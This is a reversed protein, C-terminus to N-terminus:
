ARRGAWISELSALVWCALGVFVFAVVFMAWGETYHMIGDGLAPSVYYVFFGTLFIRLGNLVMAVPIAILVLVVRSVPLRLWLGGMLTGLALLATLSRLGSCAETVFLSRSPLQIVNGSLRVPVHRWELLAAGFRSAQLQLPLALSSLVVSPLPVSLCLLITPLWWHLIQRFGRYFIVIGALALLLSVRMTFLEAALGSGYRMLIAFGIVALGFWPQPKTSAARGRKWALWVSLPGLLLGHGAEPDSWWDRLLTTIPTWYLIVFAFATVLLPLTISGSNQHRNTKVSADRAPSALTTSSM